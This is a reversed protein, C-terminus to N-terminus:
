VGAGRLELKFGEKEVSVGALDTRAAVERLLKLVPATEPNYRRRAPGAAKMADVQGEPMTARLLFEEDSLTSGIRDTANM